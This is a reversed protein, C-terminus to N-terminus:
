VSMARPAYRVGTERTPCVEKSIGLGNLACDSPVAVEVMTYRM